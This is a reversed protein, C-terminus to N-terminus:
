RAIRFGINGSSGDASNSTRASVRYRNCYSDHCMHSGGRMAKRSDSADRPTDDHDILWPDATWEWVNGVVNYLGFGNPEFAKVPATSRYGDAATNRAPFSGRWINCRFSEDEDLEDGWPYRARSLGGRAAYEWETETPLRAGAWRCFARADNWSVHVVPHDARADIDSGPGEPTSWTAGSVACWWPTHEPRPAARRLAAPLFGAFVFSWGFREADTVYGSHRIFEGFEANTVAHASIAFADVRASRVPGEEDAAHSSPGDDGMWFVAAPLDILQDAALARSSSRVPQLAEHNSILTPSPLREPTCCPPTGADPSDPAAHAEAGLEHTM